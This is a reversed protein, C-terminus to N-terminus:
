SGHQRRQSYVFLSLSLAFSRTLFLSRTFGDDTKRPCSVVQSAVHVPCLKPLSLPLTHPLVIRLQILELCLRICLRKCTLGRPRSIMDICLTHAFSPTDCQHKPICSITFACVGQPYTYTSTYQTNHIHTDRERERERVPEREREKCACVQLSRARPALSIATCANFQAIRFTYIHIYECVCM